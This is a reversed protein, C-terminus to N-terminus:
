AAAEIRWCAAGFRVTNGEVFPEFAARVTSVVRKRTPGDVNQLALGVPGLLTFYRILKTEPFSCRVDLPTIRVAKWGAAELMRKARMDDDLSFQGPGDAQRQPLQPLLPRAAREAATMFRNEAASRWAICCLGAGPRAAVHLRSFARQPDDFFMVGFRSVLLDFQQGVDHRQADACVFRAGSGAAAARRRALEIMPASIDVGVCSAAEGLARALALTTAGTGCGIDLVRRASAGVAAQVLLTEFPEFMRDLLDQAEVWARGASGNWLSHQTTTSM